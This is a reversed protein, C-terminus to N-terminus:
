SLYRKRLEDLFKQFDSPASRNILFSVYILLSFQWGSPMGIVLGTTIDEQQSLQQELRDSHRTLEGECLDISSVEHQYKLSPFHVGRLSFFFRLADADTDLEEELEFGLFQPINRPLIILPRDVVVKGRRMVTDGPNVESAGLFVYAIETADDASLLPRYFRLIKTHELSRQWKEDLDM